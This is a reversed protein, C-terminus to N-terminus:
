GKVMWQYRGAPVKEIALYGDRMRRAKSFPEGDLYCVGKGEWPLYIDAQAGVPIETRMILRDEQLVCEVSVKGRVTFVSGRM